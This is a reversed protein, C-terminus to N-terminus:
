PSNDPENNPWDAPLAVKEKDAVQLAKVLEVIEDMNRGVNMPYYLIARIISEPDIVFVTRVTQTGSSVAHLMGFIAHNMILTVIKLNDLLIIPM